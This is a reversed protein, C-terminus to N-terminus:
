PTSRRLRDTLAKLSFPRPRLRSEPTAGNAAAAAAAAGGDLPAALAAEDEESMQAVIPLDDPDFPRQTSSVVPAPRAYAPAGHLKPLAVHQHEDM